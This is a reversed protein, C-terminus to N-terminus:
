ASKEPGALHINKFQDAIEDPITTPSAIVITVDELKVLLQGITAIGVEDLDAFPEDLLLVKPDIALARALAVRRVEGGSLKSTTRTAIDRIGLKELWALAIQKAAAGSKGHCRLGYTVNSLVTGRFLMPRQHVYTIERRDTQVRCEGQYDLELGALVRLLTSKGTGNPGVVSLRGGVPADLEPVACITSGNKVVKLSRIQIM